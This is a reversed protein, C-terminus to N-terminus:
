SHLPECLSRSGIGAFLGAVFIMATATQWAASPVVQQLPVSAVFLYLNLFAYATAAASFALVAAVRHARHFRGIGRGVIVAAVFALATAPAQWQPYRGTVEVWATDNLVLLHNILSAAVVAHFGLLALMALSVISAEAITRPNTRIEILVRAAIALLVQRWFWARSRQRSAELLDGALPENDPIWRELLALALRPPRDTSV